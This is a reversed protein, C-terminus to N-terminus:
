EGDDNDEGSKRDSGDGFMKRGYIGAYCNIAAHLMMPALLSGSYVYLLALLLGIPFIVITAKAGQYAHAIAFLVSSAIVAFTMGGFQSLYWILYGRFLTEEAIGATVSLGIFLRLEPLTHPLLEPVFAWQYKKELGMIARYFIIAIAIVLLVVALSVVAPLGTLPALGLQAFPRDFYGWAGAVTLMLGWLAIMNGLYVGRRVTEPDRAVLDIFKPYNRWGHYPLVVVFVFVLLHDFWSM